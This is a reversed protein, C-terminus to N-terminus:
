GLLTRGFFYRGSHWAVARPLTGWWLWRMLGDRQHRPRLRHRMAQSCRWLLLWGFRPVFRAVTTLLYALPSPQLLQQRNRFRRHCRPTVAATTHRADGGDAPDRRHAIWDAYITVMQGM